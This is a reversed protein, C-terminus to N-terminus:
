HKKPALDAFPDHTRLSDLHDLERCLGIYLQEGASEPPAGGRWDLPEQYSDVVNGVRDYRWVEMVRRRRPTCSIQTLAVEAVFPAVGQMQQPTSWDWRLWVQRVGGELREIQTTDAAISLGKMSVVQVWRSQASSLDPIALPFLLFLFKKV